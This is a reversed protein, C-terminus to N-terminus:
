IEKVKSAYNQLTCSVQNVKKRFVKIKDSLEEQKWPQQPSTSYSKLKTRKFILHKTGRADAIVKKKSKSKEM